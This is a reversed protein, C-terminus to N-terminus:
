EVAYWLLHRQFNHIWNKNLYLLNNWRHNGSHNLLMYCQGDVISRFQALVFKLPFFIRFLCTYETRHTRCLTLCAHISMLSRLFILVSARTTRSRATVCCTHSVRAGDVHPIMFSFRLRGKGRTQVAKLIIIEVKKTEVGCNGDCMLWRAVTGRLRVCRFNFSM